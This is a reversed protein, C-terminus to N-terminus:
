GGLFECIMPMVVDPRELHSFHGASEVIEIASGPGLSDLVSGTVLERGVCADDAGHLYLTPQPVPLSVAAQEPALEPAHSSTDFLARYYGLAATLRAPDALARHVQRLDPTADYGPSWDAWLRDVFALDDMAVIGDALVSQFFFIYWSRKLQEFTFLGGIMANLPPVASAVLRRWRGPEFAAAGYLALAGWDHGVLVARDDGGLADHLDIADKVLAGAQYRGDAPLATPAYGRMFPAVAHYGAEGLAPLLHRWTWASDPFGHLALALPGGRPGSELVAFELGATTVNREEIGPAM